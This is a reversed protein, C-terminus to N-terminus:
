WARGCVGGGCVGGCVGRVCGGGSGVLGVGAVVPWRYLATTTSKM